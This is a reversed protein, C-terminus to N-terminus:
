EIAQRAQPAYRLSFYPNIELARQFQARAQATQGLADYIKGAHFYLAADQTGLRLAARSYRAAAPYDGNQYLAWALGDAGYITPRNQYARRAQEVTQAPQLHHDARFLAMELDSNMGAEMNLRDIAQVLDYQQQAAQDQGTVQYLDGLAILYSPLPLMTVVTQYYAIAEDYNGQAARIGALGALAHVYDPKLTLAETYLTEAQDLDGQNFYLQALHVQAWLSDATGLLSSDVALRMAAMAGTPDGNLERLYSLRSYTALGPRTALMTDITAAAAEYQGLEIQADAIIGYVRVNHANIAKAQEGWTLATRFDHRALALLGQGILADFNQPADQIARGLAAEAQNYLSADATIAARELLTLGLQAYAATNDPNLRLAEQLRAIRAETTTLSRLSLRPNAEASLSPPPWLLRGAVVLGFIVIAAALAWLPRFGSLIRM